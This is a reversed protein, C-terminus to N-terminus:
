LKAGEKEPRRSYNEFTKDYYAIRTPLQSSHHSLSRAQRNPNVPLGALRPVTAV